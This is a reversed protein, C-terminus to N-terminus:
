IFVCIIYESLINTNQLPYKLDTSNKGPIWISEHFSKSTMKVKGSLSSQKSKLEEKIIEWEKTTQSLKWVCM